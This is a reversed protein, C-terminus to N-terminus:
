EFQARFEAFAKRLEDVEERLRAVEAALESQHSSATSRTTSPGRGLEALQDEPIPGGMLHAIRSEKTGAARPLTQVMPPYKDELHRVVAEVAATDAFGHMRETRQRLEGVTQPGRLMLLALVAQDAEPLSFRLRILHEYKAVRASSSDRRSVIKRELLQDIAAQVETESLSLVPDRSTLQNCGSTIANISMPYNDPTLFSKEILVGLVRIETPDLDYHDGNNNESHDM